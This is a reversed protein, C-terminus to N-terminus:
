ADALRRYLAEREKLSQLYAMLAKLTEVSTGPEVVLLTGESELVEVEQGPKLGPAHGELVLALHGDLEMVKARM